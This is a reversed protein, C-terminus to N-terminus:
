EYLEDTLHAPKLSSILHALHYLNRYLYTASTGPEPHRYPGLTDLLGRADHRAPIGAHVNLHLEWDIGLVKEDFVRKDSHPSRGKTRYQPRWVSTRPSLQTKHLLAQSSCPVAFVM